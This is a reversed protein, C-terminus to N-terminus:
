EEEGVEDNTAVRVWGKNMDADVYTWIHTKHFEELAKHKETKKSWTVGKNTRQENKDNPHRLEHAKRRELVTMPKFAVMPRDAYKHASSDGTKRAKM